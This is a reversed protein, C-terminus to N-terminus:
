DEPEPVLLREMEKPEFKTLGGSYVRGDACSVSNRLYRTLTNLARDSMPFRPYLGHAINIHRVQALNRVFAPPRRAMYSALIPAPQRLGVSWWAKRHQAIYNGNAGAARALKLFHEVQRRVEAPLQELEPPIDVVCRLSRPDRIAFGAAFLERARTVAAFLVCSPLDRILPEVIWVQNHGTVQGRHVRCIEGLQVCGKPTASERRSLATWRATDRLRQVAVTKGRVVPSREDLRAIRSVHVRDIPAGKEFCCIVATADADPFPKAKPEILQLSSLGLHEVFLTRLTSGYNVDLWEAATVLCGVDHAVAKLATALIFHAHLGALQSARIGLSLASQVYWRKSEPSLQHHRVFPPNGIFATRGSIQRLRLTRYDAVVVTSRSSLGIVHLQSRLILASLPDIEVAVLQANPMARGAAAIFRGSGAGPDVIRVPAMAEIWRVMSVVLASPTYTAGLARRQAAPKLRAFAQGLPDEGRLILDRIKVVTDRNTREASTALAREAATIRADNAAGLELAIGVIQELSDIIPGSMPALRLQEEIQRANHSSPRKLSARPLVRHLGPHGDALRGTEVSALM